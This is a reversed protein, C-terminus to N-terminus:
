EAEDTATEPPSSTGTWYDGWRAKRAGRYLQKQSKGVTQAKLGEPTCLSLQVHGPHFRPHRLIRGAGPPVPSVSAPSRVAALYCFKEDEYGLEAQKARRHAATREVREAFHCWDTTGGLPCALSHPCPALLHWGDAVVAQRAALMTQFAAPTGPEILVFAVTACKLARALLAARASAPIEGLAYSMVVLDAQRPLSGSTLDGPQWEAQRLGPSSAAAALRRGCAALELDREVATAASIDPFIDTAAWLATGPGSGLDLVSTLALGPAQERLRTFAHRTAAFTAPLRTLLYAARDADSTMVPARFDAGLYRASLRQAAAALARRDVPGIAVEIAAELEAPLRM